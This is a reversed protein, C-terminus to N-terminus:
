DRVPVTAASRPGAATSHLPVPLQGSPRRLLPRRSGARREGRGRPARPQGELIARSRRVRGPASRPEVRWRAFTWAGRCPARSTSIAHVLRQPTFETFSWPSGGAAHPAAFRRPPAFAVGLCAQAVRPGHPSIMKRTRPPCVRKSLLFLRLARNWVVTLHVVAGSMRRVLSLHHQTLTSSRRVM